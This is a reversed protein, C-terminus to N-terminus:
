NRGVVAVCVSTTDFGDSGGITTTPYHRGEWRQAMETAPASYSWANLHGVDIGPGYVWCGGQVYSPYRGQMQMHERYAYGVCAPEADCAAACASETAFHIRYKQNVSVRCFNNAAVCQSGVFNLCTGILRGCFRSGPTAPAAGAPCGHLQCTPGSFGSNCNDCQPGVWGHMCTCTGAPSVCTGSPRCRRPEAACLDAVCRGSSADCVMPHATTIQDPGNVSVPGARAAVCGNMATGDCPLPDVGGNARVLQSGAVTLHGGAAVAVAVATMNGRTTASRFTAQTVTTTAGAAVSIATGTGNMTDITITTQAVTLTGGAAVSIMPTSSNGGSIISLATLSLSGLVNFSCGSTSFRPLLSRAWCMSARWSSRWARALLSFLRAAHCPSQSLALWILPHQVPASHPLIPEPVWNEPCFPNM